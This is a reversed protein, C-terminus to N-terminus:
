LRLRAMALSDVYSGDRWAYARLLGEREFGFREYLSIARVNDAYVHLELRRLQLWNDALDIITAMLATGAGRGAYADHVAMGIAGAHARRNEFRELGLAGIVKGEIVAVLRTFNAPIAASRKQRADVSTYPLQLTGAYARPQNWAETLDAMDGPELARILIDPPDM